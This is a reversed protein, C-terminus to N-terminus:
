SLQEATTSLKAWAVRWIDQPLALQQVHSQSIKWFICVSPNKLRTLQCISQRSVERMLRAIIESSLRSSLLESEVSPGKM